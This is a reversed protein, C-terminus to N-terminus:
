SVPNNEMRRRRWFAAACAESCFRAEEEEGQGFRLLFTKLEFETESEMSVCSPNQCVAMDTATKMTIALLEKHIAEVASVTLRRCLDYSSPQQIIVLLSNSIATRSDVELDAFILVNIINVIGGEFEIVDPQRKAAKVLSIGISTMRIIHMTDVFKVSSKMLLDLVDGLVEAAQQSGDLRIGREIVSLIDWCAELTPYMVARTPPANAEMLRRAFGLIMLDVFRIKDESGGRTKFMVARSEKTGALAVVLVPDMNRARNLVGRTSDATVRWAQESSMLDRGDFVGVFLRKCGNIVSLAFATQDREEAGTYFYVALSRM